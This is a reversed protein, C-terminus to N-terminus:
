AMIMVRVTDTHKLPLNNPLNFVAGMDIARTILMEIESGILDHLM